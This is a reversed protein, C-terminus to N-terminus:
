QCTRLPTVSDHGGAIFLPDISVLLREGAQHPSRHVVGGFRDDWVGGKLLAWSGAALRRIPRGPLIPVADTDREHLLARDVDDSPIWETGPGGITMLMRCPVQDVHFRPCMPRRLTTVRIGTLNCGLLATLVDVAIDIEDTLARLLDTEVSVSLASIAAQRDGACQTWQAEVVQRSSFSARAVANLSEATPRAVSVLEVDADVIASLDVIRDALVHRMM